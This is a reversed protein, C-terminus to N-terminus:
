SNVALELKNFTPEIKTTSAFFSECQSHCLKVSYLVSKLHLHFPLGVEIM